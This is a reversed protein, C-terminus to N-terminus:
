WHLAFPSHIMKGTAKELVFADPAVPMLMDDRVQALGVVGTKFHHQLLFKAGEGDIIHSMEGSHIFEEAYIYPASAKEGRGIFCDGAAYTIEELSRGQFTVAMSGVPKPRGVFDEIINNQSPPIASDQYAVTLILKREHTRGHLKVAFGTRVFNFAM